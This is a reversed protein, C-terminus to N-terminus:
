QLNFSNVEVNASTHIELAGQNEELYVRSVMMYLIEELNVSM